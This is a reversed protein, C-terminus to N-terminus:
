VGSRRPLRLPLNALLLTGALVSAAWTPWSEPRYYHLGVLWSGALLALALWPRIM